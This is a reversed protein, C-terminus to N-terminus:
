ALVTPAAPVTDMEALTSFSGRFWPTVQARLPGPLQAVEGASRDSIVSRGIWRHGVGVDANHGNRLGVDRLPALRGDRHEPPARRLLGAAPAPPSRPASGAGAQHLRALDRGPAGFRAIRLPVWVPLLPSKTLLHEVEHSNGHGFHQCEM